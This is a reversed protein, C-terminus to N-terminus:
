QQPTQDGSAPPTAPGAVDSQLAQEEAAMAARLEDQVKQTLEAAVSKGWEQSAATQVTLVQPFAVAFKKGVDTQYFDILQQMEEDTFASAWIKAFYQDLEPRRTVLQLAVKDVVSIIGLQMQPNARIFNNKAQDAIEPLIQDFVRSTGSLQLLKMALAMREPPLDTNLITQLANPQPDDAVAPALSLVAAFAFAIAALMRKM